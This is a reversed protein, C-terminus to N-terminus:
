EAKRKKKEEDEPSDGGGYGVVEVSIMSLVEEKPTAAKTQKTSEGGVGVTASTTSSAVSMAGAGVSVSVPASPVGASAGSVQINSSNLVQVAAINLNGSVRIGADGADVFGKPAILDIDGPAIGAVSTLVGIGGGTALGALDTKVSGTQTDIVVRTPPAAQVTKSSAGAAINGQSAWLVESGGRLTFVRSTGVNVNRDVFISIQGGAETLVGQDQASNGSLEVGVTLDGFPALISIDGGSRTKVGRSTLTVNGSRRVQGFVTEVAAIGERYRAEGVARGSDRLVRFFVGLGVTKRDAEKLADFRDVTLAEGTVPDVAGIGSLINGLRERGLGALLTDLGVGAVLGGGSIGSGIIVRAGDVPLYPNRQNGITTVGLGTGLPSTPGVGLTFDRGTFIELTGPGGLQLDGEMPAQGFNLANGKALSQVRLPSNPQYLVIDRGAGVMTRDTASVNQGYLSFDVVDRGAQVRAVKPAYLTIGSIDGTGAYLRLPETDGVHLVGSAHLAQKVQLSDAAGATAGTEAFLRDVPSLFLNETTLNPTKVGGVLGRYAYPLLVGPLLAPNADSVNIVSAAWAVQSTGPVLQTSIGNPQLGNLSGAASLGLNGVSSPALTLDGVLNVDGGLASVSLSPPMVGAVTRFPAVQSESLRLWPQFFSASPVTGGTLLLQRELWALLVPQAGADASFTVNRRFTVDGGLSVASVGSDKSYTSFYTKYWFTNGLGAPLLFANAVPGLLVDGRALVDIKAKGVFLMSPMWSLESEVQEPTRLNTLSVSRTANTTVNRGAALSGAGKEVYFVGGSIDRGARVSLDGGGYEVLRELSPVGKAMRANTPVVGDVNMVDRGAQMRVNGGGLAGVTQFFNSYDVWWTTSAVDAGDGIGFMGTVPDVFGRRYLWNVPIQRSSDAIAKGATNLTLRVLDNGASVTVDGGSFSYQAASLWPVAGLTGQTGLIRLVPLDFDGAALVRTPETVRVGATYIAAFPNLFRVDGAARVDIDGSGTRIVQFRGSIASALTAGVGLSPRLSINAGGDKGLLLSGAAGNVTRLTDVSGGDAGAVIRYSWSQLNLPLLANASQLTATYASSVFGDSLGGAELSVNGTARVTLV